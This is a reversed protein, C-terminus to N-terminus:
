TKILPTAAYFPQMNNHAQGSGNSQVTIGTGSGYIGIGTTNAASGSSTARTGVSGAPAGAAPVIRYPATAPNDDRQWVYSGPAEGLIWHNHGPDNVGHSHGPDNLGHNHSPMQLITLAHNEAGGIAGVNRATFGNNGSSATEGILTRGRLDPLNFTTTGNGAGATTGIEEFLAAYTSRSVPRGDPYLWGQPQNSASVGSKMTWKIDGPKYTAITIAPPLAGVPLSGDAAIKNGPITGDGGTTAEFGITQDGIRAPGQLDHFLIDYSGYEVWFDVIGNETTTFPNSVPFNNSPSRAAYLSALTTTGARYVTVQINGLPKVRGADLPDSYILSDRYNARAM